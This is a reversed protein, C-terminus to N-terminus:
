DLFEQVCQVGKIKSKPIGGPVTGSAGVRKPTKLENVLLNLVRQTTKAEFRNFSFTLGEIGIEM